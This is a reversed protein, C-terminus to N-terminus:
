MKLHTISNIFMPCVLGRELIGWEAQIFKNRPINWQQFCRTFETIPRKLLQQMMNITWQEEAVERIILVQDARVFDLVDAIVIDNGRWLSTWVKPWKRCLDFSVRGNWPPSGVWFSRMAKELFAIKFMQLIWARNEPTKGVNKWVCTKRFTQNNRFLIHLVLAGIQLHYNRWVSHSYDWAATLYGFSTDTLPSM